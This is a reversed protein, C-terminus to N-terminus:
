GATALRTLFESVGVELKYTALDLTQYAFGITLRGAGSVKRHERLAAARRTPTETHHQM